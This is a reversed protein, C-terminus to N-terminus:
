RGWRRDKSWLVKWLLRLAGRVDWWLRVLAAKSGRTQYVRRECFPCIEVKGLAGHDGVKAKGFWKGCNFCKYVKRM